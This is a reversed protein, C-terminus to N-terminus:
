GSRRSAFREFLEGRRPLTCRSRAASGGPGAPRPPHAALGPRRLGGSRARDSSVASGSCRDIARAACARPAPALDAACTIWGPTHVGVDGGGEAGQRRRQEREDRQQDCERPAQLRARRRSRTRADGCRSLAGGSAARRAEPAARRWRPRRRAPQPGHPDEAVSSRASSHAMSTRRSPRASGRFSSRM